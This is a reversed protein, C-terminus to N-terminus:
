ISDECGLRQEMKRWGGARTPAVTSRMPRPTAADTAGTAAATRRARAQCLCRSTPQRRSSRSRPASSHRQSLSSSASAKNSSTFLLAAFNGRWSAARKAHSVAPPRAVASTPRRVHSGARPAQLARECQRMAPAPWLRAAPQANRHVRPRAPRRRGRRPWRWM